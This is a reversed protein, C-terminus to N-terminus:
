VDSCTILTICTNFFCMGSFTNLLVASFNVPPCHTNGIAHQIYRTDVAVENITM